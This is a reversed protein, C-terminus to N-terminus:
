ETIFVIEAPGLYKEISYNLNPFACTEFSVVFSDDKKGLVVPTRGFKDRAAYIGNKTLILISCSGQIKNQANKIGAEFSDQENIMTAVLETPDIEGGSMESFHVKKHKFAQKALEELNKIIGVTVIAYNGLHSGIILPQDEYDSIVGIGSKGKMNIIDHQFKSKFQSNTIDHIYRIFHSNHLTVLGGRKTGLHSHYDTGYFLDYKCENNSVIGFFGGM